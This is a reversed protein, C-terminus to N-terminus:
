AVTEEERTVEAEVPAVEPAPKRKEFIAVSILGGIVSLLVLLLAILFNLFLSISYKLLPKQHIGQLAVQAQLSPASVILSDLISTARLPTAIILYLGAGIVGTLLGTKAGKGMSVPLLSQPILLWVAFFGALLAWLFDATAVYPTLALIGLIIGCVLAPYKKLMEM